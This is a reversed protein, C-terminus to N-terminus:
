YPHGTERQPQQKVLSLAESEQDSLREREMLSRYLVTHLHALVSTLNLLHYVPLM